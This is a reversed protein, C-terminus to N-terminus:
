KKQAGPPQLPQGRDKGRLKMGLLFFKHTIIDYSIGNDYLYDFGMFKGLIKEIKGM